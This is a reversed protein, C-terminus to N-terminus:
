KEVPINIISKYDNSTDSVLSVSKKKKKIILIQKCMFKVKNM